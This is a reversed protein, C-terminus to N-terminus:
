RIIKYQIGPIIARYPFMPLASLKVPSTTSAAKREKNVPSAPIKILFTNLLAAVSTGDGTRFFVGFVTAFRSILLKKPPEPPRNKM